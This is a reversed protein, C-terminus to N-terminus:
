SFGSFSFCELKIFEKGPISKEENKIDELYYENQEKLGNEFDEHLRKLGKKLIRCDNVQDVDNKLIFMLLVIKRYDTITGFLGKYYNTQDM